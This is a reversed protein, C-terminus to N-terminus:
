EYNRDDKRQWLVTGHGREMDCPESTIALRFPSSEEEMADMTNDLNKASDNLGKYSYEPDIVVVLGVWDGIQGDALIDNKAYIEIIADPASSVLRDVIRQVEKMKDIAM